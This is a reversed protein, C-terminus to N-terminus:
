NDWVHYHSKVGNVTAATYAVIPIIVKNLNANSPHTVEIAFHLRVQSSVTIDAVVIRAPISYDGSGKDLYCLKTVTATDQFDCTIAEGEEVGYGLDDAFVVENDLKTPFEIYLNHSTMANDLKIDFEILAKVSGARVHQHIIFNATPTVTPFVEVTYQNEETLTVDDYYQYKVYYEGVTATFENGNAGNLALQRSLILEHVTNAPLTDSDYVSMKFSIDNDYPSATNLAEVIKCRTELGTAPNVFNCWNPETAVVTTYLM